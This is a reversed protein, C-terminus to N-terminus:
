LLECGFDELKTTLVATANKHGGAIVKSFGNIDVNVVTHLFAYPVQEQHTRIVNLISFELSTELLEQDKILDDTKKIM